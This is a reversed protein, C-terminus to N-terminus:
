SRPVSFSYQYREGDWAVAVILPRSVLEAQGGSGRWFMAETAPDTTKDPDGQPLQNLRITDEIEGYIFDRIADLVLQNGPDGPQAGQFGSYPVTVVLGSGFDLEMDLTTSRDERIMDSGGGIGAFM